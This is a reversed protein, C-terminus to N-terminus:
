IMWEPKKRKTWKAFERKHVIYFNRYSQVHCKSKVDDPMTLPPLNGDAFKINNPLKKLVDKLKTYTSHVKGYRYTYENCLHLWM